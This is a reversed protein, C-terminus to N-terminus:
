DSSELRLNAFYPEQQQGVPDKARNFSIRM